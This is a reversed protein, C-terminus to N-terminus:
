EASPEERVLRYANSLRRVYASHIRASGVLSAAAFALLLIAAAVAEGVGVDQLLLFALALPAALAVNLVTARAIRLRSRQYDLFKALGESEKLVTLRMLAVDAGSLEKRSSEGFRDDVWRGAQTRALRDTLSDALRDAIIGLVYAAALVLVGVLTTWDALAEADVWETGFVSLLLLVLVAEAQLGVILIEAFLATTAM